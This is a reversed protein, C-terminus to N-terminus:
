KLEKNFTEKFKEWYKENEIISKFEYKTFKDFVYKENFKKGESIIKINELDDIEHFKVMFKNHLLKSTKEESDIFENLKKIDSCLKLATKEGVGKFGEINDSSDGKLAKFLVYDFEPKKIYAKKLPNYLKTKENISQIFDTDSSIITVEDNKHVHNAYYNCIDDCEHYPHKVIKIPFAEKLIEQIEKRQSSFNDKDEYVRQAKYTSEGFLKKTAEIRKVPKGELVMYAIDFDFEEYISRLSRFFNFIASTETRFRTAYRARYM